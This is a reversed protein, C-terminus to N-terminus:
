KDMISVVKLNIVITKYNSNKKNNTTSLNTKM